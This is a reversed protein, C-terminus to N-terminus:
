CQLTLHRPGIFFLPLFDPGVIKLRCFTTTNELTQGTHHLSPCLVTGSGTHNQGSSWCVCNFCPSAQCGFWVVLIVFSQQEHEPIAPPPPPPPATHFQSATTAHGLFNQASLPAHCPTVLQVVTSACAATSNHEPQRPPARCCACAATSNHEPQRPARYFRVGGHQQARAPTTASQLLARRRATTSQSANTM